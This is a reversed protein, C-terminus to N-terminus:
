TIADDPNPASIPAPDITASEQQWATVAEAIERLATSDALIANAARQPFGYIDTDQVGVGILYQGVRAALDAVADPEIQLQYYGFPRAQIDSPVVMGLAGAAQLFTEFLRVQMTDSDARDTNGYVNFFRAVVARLKAYQEAHTDNWMLANIVGALSDVADIVTLIIDDRHYQPSVAGSTSVREPQGIAHRADRLCFQAHQFAESVTRVPSEPEETSM